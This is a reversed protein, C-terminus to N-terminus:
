ENTSKIISEIDAILLQRYGDVVGDVCIHYGDRSWRPHLDCRCDLPIDSPHKIKFPSIVRNTKIQYLLPGYEMNKDPYTDTLMWELDPSWSCHGDTKFVGKCLLRIESGPDSIMYYDMPLDKLQAWALIESEHQWDFHSIHGQGLCALKKGDPDATLVRSTTKGASDKWRHFFLIRKDKPGWFLHNNRHKADNMAPDHKFAAIEPYSLILKNIGTELDMWYLGDNEPILDDRFPDPVGDYGYGPRCEHLRSFSTSIAQKGDRSVAYTALPLIKERGNTIDLIVTVFQGDRRDNYLIKRDPDSPLWQLRCSMQWNWARTVAIKQYKLGDELDILLISAIDDPGPAHNMFDTEMCLMRRGDGSWPCVDYYGFFHHKGNSPSVQKTM